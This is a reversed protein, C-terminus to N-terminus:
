GSGESPTEGRRQEEVKESSDAEIKEGHSM